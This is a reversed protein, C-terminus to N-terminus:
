LGPVQPPKLVFILIATSILILNTFAVVIVARGIHIGTYSGVVHATVIIIPTHHRSHKRVHGGVVFIVCVIVQGSIRVILATATLVVRVHDIYQGRHVGVCVGWQASVIPVAVVCVRVAAAAAAAACVSVFLQAKLCERLCQTIDLV